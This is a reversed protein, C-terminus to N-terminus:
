RLKQNHTTSLPTAVRQSFDGRLLEDMQLMVAREGGGVFLQNGTEVNRHGEYNSCSFSNAAPLMATTTSCCSATFRQRFAQVDATRASELSTSCSLASASSRWCRTEM